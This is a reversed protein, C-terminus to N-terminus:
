RKRPTSPDDPLVEGALHLIEARLVPSIRFRQEILQDVLPGVSPVLGQPKAVLLLGLLRSAWAIRERPWADTQLLRRAKREDVLVAAWATAAASLVTSEGIDLRPYAAEDGENGIRLLGEDLARLLAPVGRRTSVDAAEDWVYQTVRIPLPLLTLLDLRDIRALGILTTADVYVPTQRDDM